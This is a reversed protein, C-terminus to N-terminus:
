GGPPNERHIIRRAKLEFRPLTGPPVAQVEARFHYRDQFAKAVREALGADQPGAHPVPEIELRLSNMPGAKTVLIRFEAVGPFSRVLGEIAAPYINNGRVILMDDARGLIGGLMRAFSRGCRCREFTLRVLDGTRFRILPSGARGLTTLTLEGTEGPPLPQGTQPHVVEPICESGLLHTNGPDEACEIGLPGAETMGSHDFCRGGWAKEIQNKTEPINGGPEGAVLLARVPSAALDIGEEIAVEALRLAYTPTCGVITAQNDLMFRLRAASTMGGGPLAMNGMRAAAEFASWFGLFPGFSFPFFLRDGATLGMARYIIGWCRMVWDWSEPTDLWRLPPGTTGSTQHLRVYREIPYTLVTGYPPHAAQDAALEEKTTFPLHRLDAVNKFHDPKIGLPGLKRNYFRNDPLIKALLAQLKGLQLQALGEADLTEEQPVFFSGSM